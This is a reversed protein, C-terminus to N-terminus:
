HPHRKKARLAQLWDSDKDPDLDPHQHVIPVMLDTFTRGMVEGLGRRLERKSTEDGITEILAAAENFPTDLGCFILMLREAIDREM